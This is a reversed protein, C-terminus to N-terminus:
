AMGTTSIADAFVFCALVAAALFLPWAWRFYLDLLPVDGFRHIMALLAHPYFAHNLM